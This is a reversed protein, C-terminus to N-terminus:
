GGDTAAPPEIVINGHVDSLEMTWTLTGPEGEEDVGSATFTYKVPYGEDAIWVDGQTHVLEAGFQNGWEQYTSTYHTAPIGNVTEAGVRASSSPLGSYLGEWSFAPALVLIANSMAEAVMVPVEQWSGEELMWAQEEIRILEFGEGTSLDIWKLHRRRDAIAGRLEISGEEVEGNDVGAYVFTTTYRYSDLDALAAGAGEFIRRLDETLPEDAPPTEAAAAVTEDISPGDVPPLDSDPVSPAEADSPVDPQVSATDDPAEALDEPPATEDPQAEDALDPATTDGVTDAAPTPDPQDDSPPSERNSCAAGGLVLAIVLLVAGIQRIRM